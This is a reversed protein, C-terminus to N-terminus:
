SSSFTSSRSFRISFRKCQREGKNLTHLKGLLEARRADLHKTEYEDLAQELLWENEELAKVVNDIERANKM